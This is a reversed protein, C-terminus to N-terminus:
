HTDTGSVTKFVASILINNRVFFSDAKLAFEKRYLYVLNFM